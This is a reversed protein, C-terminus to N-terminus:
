PEVGGEFAGLVGRLARAFAVPPLRRDLVSGAWSRGARAFLESM